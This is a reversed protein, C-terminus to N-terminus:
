IAGAHKVFTVLGVLVAVILVFAAAVPLISALIVMAIYAIVGAILGHVAPALLSM